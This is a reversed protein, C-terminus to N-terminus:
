VILGLFLICVSGECNTAHILMTYMQQVILQHMDVIMLTRQGAGTIWVNTAHRIKQLSQWIRPKLAKSIFYRSPQDISDGHEPTKNRKRELKLKEREDANDNLTFELLVLDM